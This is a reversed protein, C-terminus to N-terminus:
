QIAKAFEPKLMCEKLRAQSYEKVLTQVENEDMNESMYAQLLRNEYFDRMPSM